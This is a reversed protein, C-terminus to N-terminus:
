LVDVGGSSILVVVTHLNAFLCRSRSLASLGEKCLGCVKAMAAAVSALTKSYLSASEGVDDDDSDDNNLGFPLVEESM